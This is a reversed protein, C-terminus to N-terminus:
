PCASLVVSRAVGGKLFTIECRQGDAISFDAPLTPKWGSAMEDDVSTQEVEECRRTGLQQIAASLAAVSYYLPRGDNLPAIMGRDRLEFFVQPSGVLRVATEQCVTLPAFHQLKAVARSERERGDVM